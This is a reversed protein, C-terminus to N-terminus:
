VLFGSGQKNINLDRADQEAQLTYAERYTMDIVTTSGGIASQNYTVSRVFLTAQIDAFEDNVEILLNPEILFGNLSHGPIIPQYTLSRARRINAEWAAREACTQSESSEEANLELYRTSRIYGDRASGNQGVVNNPTDGAGLFYPNLQSQIEYTGYRGTDDFSFSASKINNDKGNIINQLKVPAVNLTARSIKINGNGDSTLFVQRKRAYLECFEFANKGVEASSIDTNKFNQIGGTSDIVSINSLGLSNLVNRIIDIISVAGTFEKITKVSSDILDCTKDRGAVNIEHSDQSYAGTIKEIYGDIVDNEDISIQVRDGRKVPFVSNENATSVFSFGGAVTEFSRTVTASKWNTYEIGNLKITM